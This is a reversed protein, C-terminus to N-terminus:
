SHLHYAPETGYFSCTGLIFKFTKELVKNTHLQQDINKQVCMGKVRLKSLNIALYYM